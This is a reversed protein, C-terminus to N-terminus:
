AGGSTHQQQSLNLVHFCVDSALHDWPAKVFFYRERAACRVDVAIRLCRGTFSYEPPGHEGVGARATGIASLNFFVGFAHPVKYFSASLFNRDFVPPVWRKGAPSKLFLNWNCFELPRLLM